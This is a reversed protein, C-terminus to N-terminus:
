LYGSRFKTFLVLVYPNETYVFSCQDTKQTLIQYNKRSRLQIKVTKIMKLTIKYVFFVHLSNIVELFSIQMDEKNM